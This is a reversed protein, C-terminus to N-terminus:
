KIVEPADPAHDLRSRTVFLANVSTMKARQLTRRILDADPATRSTFLKSLSPRTLFADVFISTAGDTLRLSMTGFFTSQVQNDNSSMNTISTQQRSQLSMYCIDLLPNREKKQLTEANYRHITPRCFDPVDSCCLYQWM